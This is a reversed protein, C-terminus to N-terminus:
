LNLRKHLAIITFYSFPCSILGGILYKDSILVVSFHHMTTAAATRETEEAEGGWDITKM